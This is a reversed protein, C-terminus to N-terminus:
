DHRDDQVELQYGLAMYNAADLHSDKHSPTQIIRAIKQLANLRAVDAGRIPVGLYASWLEAIVSFNKEPKGYIAGRESLMESAEQLLDEAQM